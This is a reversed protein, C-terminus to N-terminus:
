ILPDQKGLHLIFVPYTPAGWEPNGIGISIGKLEVYIVTSTYARHFCVHTYSTDLMENVPQFDKLCAKTQTFTFGYDSHSGQLLRKLYRLTLERYEETKEGSAIMDYWKHKLFLHLVKMRPQKQNIGRRGLRLSSTTQIIEVM